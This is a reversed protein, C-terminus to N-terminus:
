FLCPLRAADAPNWLLRVSTHPLGDFDMKSTYLL